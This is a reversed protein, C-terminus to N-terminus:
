PCQRVAGALRREHRARRRAKTIIAV